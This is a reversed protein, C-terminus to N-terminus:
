VHLLGMRRSDEPRTLAMTGHRRAHESGFSRLFDSTHLSCFSLSDAKDLLEREAEESAREGHTILRCVRERTGLEVGLDALLERAMDASRAPTAGEFLPGGVEHFLAAVQVALDAEPELRLVWQWTDLSHQYHARGKAVSMDHLSRHRDLLCDFVSSACAANRRSILGQYRTLIELAAEALEQGTAGVLHLALREAKAASFVRADWTAPEFGPTRWEEVDLRLVQAGVGAALPQLAVSPFQSAVRAWSEEAEWTEAEFESLLLQRLM